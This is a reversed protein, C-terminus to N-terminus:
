AGLAENISIANYCRFGLGSLHNLVNKNDDIMISRRAYRYFSEGQEMADARLLTEKLLADSMQCDMPRSLIREFNLGNDRLFDYDASSMVRATCAIVEVFRTMNRKAHFALPLLGDAFIKERTCHERWHDLDLSGDARTLQRHSSDILTHDLDYVFRMFTVRVTQAPVM